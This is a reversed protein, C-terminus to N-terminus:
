NHFSIWEQIMNFYSEGLNKFDLPKTIYDHFRNIRLTKYMLDSDNNPNGTVLIFKMLPKAKRVESCLENGSMLPMVEDTIVLAVDEEKKIFELAELPDTFIKLHLRKGYMAEFLMGNEEVDDVYVVVPKTKGTAQTERLRRMLGGLTMTNISEPTLIDDLGLRRGGLREELLLLVEPLTTFDLGLETLEAHEDLKAPLPSYATDKLALTDVIERIVRYYVSSNM